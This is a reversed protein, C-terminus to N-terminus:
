ATVVDGDIKAEAIMSAPLGLDEVDSKEAVQQVEKKEIPKTDVVPPNLEEFNNILRQYHEMHQRYNEALVINGSREADKALTDYKETIQYATGRVCVDPGNSDYVKMKNNGGSKKNNQPRNGRQPQHRKTNHRM